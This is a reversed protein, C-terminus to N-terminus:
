RRNGETRERRSSRRQRGQMNRSSEDKQGQDSCGTGFKAFM